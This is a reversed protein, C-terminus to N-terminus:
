FLDLIQGSLVEVGVRSTWVVMIGKRSGQVLGGCQDARPGKFQSRKLRLDLQMGGRSLFVKEDGKM